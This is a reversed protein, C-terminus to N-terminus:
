PRSFPVSWEGVSVALAAVASPQSESDTMAQVDRQSDACLQKRHSGSGKAGFGWASCCGDLAWPLAGGLPLVM